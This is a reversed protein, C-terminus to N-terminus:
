NFFSSINNFSLTNNSSDSDMSYVYERLKQSIVLDIDTSINHGLYTARSIDINIRYLM